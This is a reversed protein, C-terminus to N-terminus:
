QPHPSVLSSLPRKQGEATGESPQVSAQVERCGAWSAFAAHVTPVRSISPSHLRREDRRSGPSIHVTCPVSGWGSVSAAVRRAGRAPPNPYTFVTDDALVGTRDETGFSLLRTHQENTDPSHRDGVFIVPKREWSAGLARVGGAAQLGCGHICDNLFAGM